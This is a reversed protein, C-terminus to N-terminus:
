FGGERERATLIIVSGLARATNVAITSNFGHFRAYILAHQELMAAQAIAEPLTPVGLTALWAAFEPLTPLPNTM